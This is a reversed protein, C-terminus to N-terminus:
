PCAMPSAGIQLDEAPTGFTGPGECNVARALYWFGIGPAPATPDVLTTETRNDGLCRQVCSGFEGTNRLCALDGSLIDYGTGGPVTSWSWMAPGGPEAASLMPTGTPPTAASCTWSTKVNYPHAGVDAFTIWGINEGWARGSFSGSSADIFVGATSPAFNIWGVNEGWGYGSLVGHGDNLVGYNVSTCSHTNECSLSVWGINEGYMWGSLTFDNVQIGPGGNGSPEANLWGVNEGYAFRSGDNGPDINEAAAVTVLLLGSAAIMGVAFLRGPSGKQTHRSHATM